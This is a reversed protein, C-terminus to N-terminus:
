WRGFFRCYCSIFFANLCTISKFILFFLLLFPPNHLFQFFSNTFLNLWESITKSKIWRFQALVILGSLILLLLAIGIFSIIPNYKEKENKKKDNKELM